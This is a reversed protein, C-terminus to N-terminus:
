QLNVAEVEGLVVEVNPCNKFVEEFPIALTSKLKLFEAPTLPTLRSWFAAALEYYDAPYSHYSKKDVLTIKARPNKKSLDLAARVGGFGGGLIVIHEEGKNKQLPKRDVKIKLKVTKAM